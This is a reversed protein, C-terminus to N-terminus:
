ESHTAKQRETLASSGSISGTLLVPAPKREGYTKAASSELSAVESSITMGHEDPLANVTMICVKACFCPWRVMVLLPRALM